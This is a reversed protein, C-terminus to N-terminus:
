SVAWCLDQYTEWYEYTRNLYEWQTEGEISSRYYDFTDGVSVIKGSYKELYEKPTM